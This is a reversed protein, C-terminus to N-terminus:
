SVRSFDFPGGTGPRRDWAFESVSIYEQAILMELMFDELVHQCVRVLNETPYSFHYLHVCSVSVTYVVERNRDIVANKISIM